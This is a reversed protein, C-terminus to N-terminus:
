PKAAQRWAWRFLNRSDIYRAEDTPCGLVVVIRPIEQHRGSAVLCNGATNTFGTKIGDYGGLKLLQNTNEWEVERETGTSRRAKGVHRTTAVVQRFVENKMAEYALVVLDHATTTRDNDTGGDGYPMRYVTNAMGLRAATRNMEAVFNRRTKYAPGLLTEPTEKGPPQLRAHFHEAFANGMDNGSPLLLAYLGDRVTVREGEKLGATSGSTADALASIRVREDLVAPDRRAFELVVLACMVKTTSASKLPEGANFSEIVQGTAGDAIAWAKATTLPPALLDEEAMASALNMAFIFTTAAFTRFGKKVHMSLSTTVVISSAM